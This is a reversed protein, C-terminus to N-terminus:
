SLFKSILSAVDEPRELAALHAGDEIIELSAGPIKETYRRGHEPPVLRDESGWVVLTPCNIRHLRGELRPNHLYPNWAIRATAAQNNIFSLLIDEPPPDDLDISAILMALPHSPNAFLLDVLDQPESLGWMPAIPADALWLGAADILVLAGLREPWRVAVEAALWGGLSLGALVPRDLELAELLDAYHFAMDEVDAIDEIGTSEGFGPHAPCIAEFGEIKELFEPGWFEGVASHLFVLPKGEGGRRVEVKRGAAEVIEPERM